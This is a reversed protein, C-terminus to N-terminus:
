VVPSLRPKNLPRGQPRLEVGGLMLARRISSRSTRMSEALDDLTKGLAYAQSIPGVKSKLTSTPGLRKGVCRNRERWNRPDIGSGHLYNMVSQRSLGTDAQLDAVTKGANWGDALREV